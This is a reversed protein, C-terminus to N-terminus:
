ELTYNEPVVRTGCLDDMTLAVAHVQTNRGRANIAMQLFDKTLNGFMVPMNSEDALQCALRVDKQMLGLTFGSELKGSLIHRAFIKESFFNRGAGANFIELAKEGSVGNKVALAVAEMTALRQAASLMNNALKAVNGAGCGGAHFINPSIAQLVPLVRQFAADEAGVMIAITGAEAAIPGGSVPADVFAIDRRALDQAIARTIVPDGTTQDVITTGARLGALLGDDGEITAKVHQSTPLCLFITDCTEALAKLSGATKAGLAAFREMARAEIDYVMLARSLLLREALAGGMSGIGVYGVTQTM